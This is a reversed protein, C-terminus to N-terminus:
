ARFFCADCCREPVVIGIQPLCQRQQSCGDCVVRGCARCHHRACAGMAAARASSEEETLLGDNWEAAEHQQEWTFPSACCACLDGAETFAAWRPPPRLAHAVARVSKLAALYAAGRHDDLMHPALEVETLAPEVDVAPLWAGRYVGDAQYLHLVRGPIRLTPNALVSALLSQEAVAALEGKADDCTSTAQSPCAAASCAVASGTDVEDAEPAYQRGTAETEGDVEATRAVAETAAIEGRDAGDNRGPGTSRPGDCGLGETDIDAHAAAATAAPPPPSSSPEVADTGLSVATAARPQADPQHASPSPHLTLGVSSRPLLVVRADPRLAGGRSGGTETRMEVRACARVQVRVTLSACVLPNVGM